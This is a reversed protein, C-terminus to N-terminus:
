LIGLTQARTHLIGELRGILQPLTSFDDLVSAALWSTEKEYKLAYLLAEALARRVDPMLASEEQETLMLLSGAAEVAEELAYSDRGLSLSSVPLTIVPTALACALFTRRNM